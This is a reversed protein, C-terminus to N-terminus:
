DELKEVHIKPNIIPKLDHTKIAETYAIPLLKRLVEERLKEKDVKDEALKRPAKGKRFGPLEINTLVSLMADEWTKKIDSNPITVTLRITGNPEKQLATTLKNM